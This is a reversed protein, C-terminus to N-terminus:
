KRPRPPGPKKHKTAPGLEIKRIGQGFKITMHTESLNTALPSVNVFVATKSDGGLSDQLAHTLKSNRYPVHPSNTALSKFVQGLASLSKNIAAAEVLREGSAETKSVRESGALDVLTLKGVTTAKSITNYATVTLQLLLHSRSSDTNMLTAGVSRHQEATEIAKLVDEECTANIEVLGGVYTGNPGSHLKLDKKREATLLDFIKENYVEMISVQVKYETEKREGMLTFLEQIARRNVGPNNPPGMMTYTKGSGTQGYAIICVNYGDVCSLIIPKTDAFVQEQTSSPGFCREFEVLATKGQLTKVEMETDSAFRFVCDGRDDRRVRCFVRINGRLEQVKNYLLKRQMQEKLYKATVEDLQAHVNTLLGRAHTIATSFMPVLTDINGQLEEQTQRQERKLNAVQRQLDRLVDARAAGDTAKDKYEQVKLKLAVNEMRMQELQNALEKAKKKAGTEDGGLSAVQDELQALRDADAQQTVLQSELERVKDRLENNTNMLKEIREEADAAFRERRMMEGEVRTKERVLERKASSEQHQKDELLKNLQQDKEAVQRELEAIREVAALTLAGGQKSNGGKGGQAPFNIEGFAIADPLNYNCERLALLQENVNTWHPLSESIDHLMARVEPIDCEWQLPMRAWQGMDEDYYLRTNRENEFLYTTLVGRTPHNYQGVRADTEDLAQETEPQQPYWEDPFPMWEQRDWDMYMRQGNDDVYTTVESGDDLTVYEFSRIEVREEHFNHPREVQTAGTRKNLYYVNGDRPDRLQCWDNWDEEKEQYIVTLVEKFVPIFEEYSIKGDGDQDASRRIQEMEDKSLNLKLTDSSLVSEFEDVDLVGNNDADANQFVIMCIDHFYDSHGAGAAGARTRSQKVRAKSTESLDKSAGSGM